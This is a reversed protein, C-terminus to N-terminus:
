LVGRARVASEPVPADKDLPKPTTTVRAGETLAEVGEVVLVDGVNVGDLVEVRLPDRIGTRVQRRYARGDNVIWVSGGSEAASPVLLGDRAEVILNVEATMGSRLGAPPKDMRVKVLFAKKQRDADPLIEFVRGLLASHPFALLSVAAETAAGDGLGDRVRAIDAEDVDLELVLSRADGVTFLTQNVGVVEGLEVNKSLVIGDLPARVESDAVRADLAEAQATKQARMADLDVRLARQEALNAALNGDLSSVKTRVRDVESSAIAGSASLSLARGLDTRATALEARLSEAQAALAALRPAEKGSQQVAARLEARGREADFGAVKSDIRALLEGKKVAAGARVLLEVLAGATRAKVHVRNEAEVTGTAYIADVAKGRVVRDVSVPLARTSRLFYFSAGAVVLVLAWALRWGM